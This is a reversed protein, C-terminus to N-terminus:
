LRFGLAEIFSTPLNDILAIGTFVALYELGIVVLRENVNNEPNMHINSWWNSISESFDRFVNFNISQLDTEM